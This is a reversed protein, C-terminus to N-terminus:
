DRGRHMRGGLQAWVADPLGRMLWGIATWPCVPVASRYVRREILDAIRRTGERRATLGLAGGRRALELALARGIGSSAGTVIAAKAM